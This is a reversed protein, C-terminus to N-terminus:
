RHFLSPGLGQLPGLPSQEEELQHINPKGSWSKYIVTDNKIVVVADFQWGSVNVLRKFNLFDMWFNGYRQRDLHSQEIEYGFCAQAASICEQLGPDLLRIDASATPMLRRLLDAHALVTINPTHDPDVGLAKLEALSTKAPVIKAFMAQADAYSHWPTQSEQKGNPLLSSCGALVMALGVSVWQQLASRM